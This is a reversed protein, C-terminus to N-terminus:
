AGKIKQVIEASTAVGLFMGVLAVVYSRIENAITADKSMVILMLGMLAIAVAFFFASVKVLRGSSRDGLSDRLFGIPKHQEECNEDM